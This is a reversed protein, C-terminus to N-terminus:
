SPLLAKIAGTILRAFDTIKDLRTNPFVSGLTPIENFVKIAM